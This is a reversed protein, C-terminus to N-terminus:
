DCADTAVMVFRCVVVMAPHSFAWFGPNRGAVYSGLANTVPYSAMNM